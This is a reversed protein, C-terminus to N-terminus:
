GFQRCRFMGHAWSSRRGKGWELPLDDMFRRSPLYIVFDTIPRAMVM